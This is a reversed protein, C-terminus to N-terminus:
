SKNRNNLKERRGTKNLYIQNFYQHKHRITDVIDSVSIICMNYM